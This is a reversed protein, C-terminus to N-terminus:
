KIRYGGFPPSVAGKSFVHKEIASKKPKNFTIEFVSGILSNEGVDFDYQYM